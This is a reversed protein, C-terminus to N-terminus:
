WDILGPYYIFGAAKMDRIVDDKTLGEIRKADFHCEMSEYPEVCAPLGKVNHGGLSDHGDPEGDADVVDVFIYMREKKDAARVDFLIEQPKYVRNDDDDDSM